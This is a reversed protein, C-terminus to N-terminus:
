ACCVQAPNGLMRVLSYFLYPDLKGPMEKKLITLAAYATLAPRYPRHSTMAEFSDILAVIMSFQHLDAGRLGKPYGSGDLREHHQAVITSVVESLDEAGALLESGWTPHERVIAWETPTLTGPKELLEKPVRAKGVDHLFAGLGLNLLARDDGATIFKGLGLAYVAVNISHTYVSYHHRMLSLLAPLANPSRSIYGATM